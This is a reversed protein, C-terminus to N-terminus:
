ATIPVSRFTLLLVDGKASRPAKNGPWGELLRQVSDLSLVTLLSRLSDRTVAGCAGSKVTTAQWRSPVPPNGRPLSWRLDHTIM